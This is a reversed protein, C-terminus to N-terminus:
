LWRWGCGSIRVRDPCGVCGGVREGTEAQFFLNLVAEADFPTRCVPCVRGGGTGPPLRNICDIHYVHRCPVACLEETLREHCIACRPAARMQVVIVCVDLDQGERSCM